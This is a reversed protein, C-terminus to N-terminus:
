GVCGSEGTITVPYGTIIVNKLIDRRIYRIAIMFSSMPFNTYSLIWCLVFFVLIM